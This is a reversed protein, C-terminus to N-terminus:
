TDRLHTTVVGLWGFWDWDAVLVALPVTLALHVVLFAALLRARSEQPQLSSWINSVFARAAAPYRDM